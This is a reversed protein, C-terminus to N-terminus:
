RVGIEHVDLARLAEGNCGNEGVSLRGDGALSAAESEACGSSSLALETQSSGPSSLALSIGCCIYPSLGRHQRQLPDERQEDDNLQM